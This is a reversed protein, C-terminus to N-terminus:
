KKLAEAVCLPVFNKWDVAYPSLEKVLSSSIHRYKPSALLFISELKGALIKNTIFMSEESDMDKVGRLGRLLCNYTNKKMYDALLLSSSDIHINKIHQTAQKLFSFREEVTFQYNKNQAHSVLVVLKDCLPIAREIIDLHGLTVPDFSGAYVLTKM